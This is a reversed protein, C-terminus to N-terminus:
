VRRRVLWPYITYGLLAVVLGAPYRFLSFGVSGLVVLSFWRRDNRWLWALKPYSIRSVALGSVGVLAAFFWRAPLVLILGTLLIGAGPMPLGIYNASKSKYQRASRVLRGIVATMYVVAGVELLIGSLRTQFQSFLLPAMGFTNADAVVDLVTGHFSPSGSRRALAGDIGDLLGALILLVLFIFPRSSNVIALWGLGFVTLTCVDGAIRWLWARSRPFFGSVVVQTGM